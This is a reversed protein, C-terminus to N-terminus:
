EKDIAFDCTIRDPFDRGWIYNLKVKKDNHDRHTESQVGKEGRCETDPDLGFLGAWFGIPDDPISFQFRLKFDPALNWERLPSLEYEFFRRFWSSTFYSVDEEYFSVPQHYRIQITSAGPPVTCNITADSLPTQERKKTSPARESPEFFSTETSGDACWAQISGLAPAVFKTTVRFEQEDINLIHYTANFQCTERDCTVRLDESKVQISNGIAKPHFGGPVVRSEPRRLNATALSCNLSIWACLALNSRNNM